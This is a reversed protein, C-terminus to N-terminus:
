KVFIIFFQWYSNNNITNITVPINQGPVVALNKEGNIGPGSIFFGFVDNIEDGVYENYEESLFIYNFEISESQVQFDFQLTVADWTELGSLDDLLIHGAGGYATSTESSSNPGVADFINGTSLIVGSSVDLDNGTFTFTGSQLADGSISCNTANISEGSFLDALEQATQGDSVTLQAFSQINIIFATIILIILTKM